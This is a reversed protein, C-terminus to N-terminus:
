AAATALGDLGAGGSTSRSNELRCCTQFELNFLLKSIYSSNPSTNNIATSSSNINSTTNAERQEPQSISPTDRPLCHRFLICIHPTVGRDQRFNDWLRRNACDSTTTSIRHVLAVPQHMFSGTPLGSINQGSARSWTEKNLFASRTPGKIAQSPLIYIKRHSPSALMTFKTAMTVIILYLLLSSCYDGFRFCLAFELRIPRRHSESSTHCKVRTATPFCWCRSTFPTPLLSCRRHVHAQAVFWGVGHRWGVGYWACLLSPSSSKACAARVLRQLQAPTGVPEHKRASPRSRM